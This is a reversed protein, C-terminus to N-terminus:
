SDCLILLAYQHDNECFSVVHFSMMTGLFTPEWIGSFHRAVDGLYRIGNDDTSIVVEALTSVATISPVSHTVPVSVHHLTASAQLSAGLLSVEGHKVWLSYLGVVM